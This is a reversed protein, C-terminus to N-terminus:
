AACHGPLSGKFMDFISKACVPQVVAALDRAALDRAATGCLALMAVWHVGEGAMLVAQRQGYVTAWAEPTQIRVAIPWATVLQRDQAHAADAAARLLRCRGLTRCCGAAADRAPEDEYQWQVASEEQLVIVQTLVRSTKRAGNM